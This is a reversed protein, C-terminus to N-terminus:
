EVLIGESRLANLLQTLAKEDPCRLTHLHIGGTLGSLPGDGSSSVKDIFENVDFRSSLDLRGILQGYVSHEVIVDEVTCGYDVMLELERRMQEASHRCVVTYKKGVPQELVYGRATAVIDTGGARLLAVDGVIIQRSVSLLSALATASLPAQAEKLANLIAERRQTSNM